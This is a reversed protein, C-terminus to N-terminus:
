AKLSVWFPHFTTGSISSPTTSFFYELKKYNISQSSFKGYMDLIEKLTNTEKEDAKCFLFFITTILYVLALTDKCMKVVYINGRNM